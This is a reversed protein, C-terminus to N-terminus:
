LAIRYAVLLGVDFIDIRGSLSAVDLTPSQERQAPLIWNSYRFRAGVSRRHASRADAIPHGVGTGSDRLPPSRDPSGGMRQSGTM